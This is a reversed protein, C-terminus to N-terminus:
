FGGDREMRPLESFYNEMCDYLMTYRGGDGMGSEIALSGWNIHQKM